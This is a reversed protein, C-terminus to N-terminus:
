ISVVYSGSIHFSRRLSGWVKFVATPFFPDFHVELSMCGRHESIHWAVCKCHTNLLPTTLFSILSHLLLLSHRHKHLHTESWESDPEKHESTPSERAPLLDYHCPIHSNKPLDYPDQGFQVHSQSNGTPNIASLSPESFMFVSTPILGKLCSGFLLWRSM